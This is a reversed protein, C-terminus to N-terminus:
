ELKIVAMFSFQQMLIGLIKKFGVNKLYDLVPSFFM